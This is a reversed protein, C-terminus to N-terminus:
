MALTLLFFSEEVATVSHPINHQLSVMQGKQLSITQNDATFKITGQLVQVSINANTQHTKLIANEHMGILVIRMKESKYIAISSHESESWIKESKIQAMFKNLDMEVLTANIVRDGDPRLPTAENSKNEM